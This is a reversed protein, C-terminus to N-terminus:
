GGKGGAALFDLEEVDEGERVLRASNFMVALGSAAHLLVAAVPHIRGAASLGLLLAVYASSFLLNQRVVRSLRRALHFIFPIRNLENNMLAISAAHIAVASGAAGMAISVDAEALAPADNTGDGVVAVRGCARRLDRVAEAKQGPLLDARVETCGIAGAVKEAVARRDGTLMIRRGIGEDGLRVMLEAAGPRIEDEMDIWGALRGEVGVYLRTEGEHRTEDGRQVAVGRERLFGARGVVIRRNGLLGELGLGPVEAVGHGAAPEIGRRQAEALVAGAVPHNSHAELGAALALVEAEGGEAEAHVDLVHLCGRTLTGTKDFAVADVRGALELDRVNKVLVGLRAAAGLAAVAATPGALVIACPCAIVLMSVVREMDRTFFLTAGALMLVVPAYWGAYRDVLRMAPTRTAEAELILAQVQELTTDKGSRRVEIELVGTVNLSGAYVVDGAGKEAPLSEGTISAEDITSRGDAIVGDGPISEGPRVRIRDGPVLKGPEVVVEGGDEALRRATTPRLRVLAEISRRAGLASRYEVLSSLLMFLSVSGATAYHGSAFAAAVGLAALANMQAGGAWLDRLAQWVLPAALLVAAALSATGAQAPHPFIREALVAAGLLVGGLLTAAIQLSAKREEGEVMEIMFDHAM